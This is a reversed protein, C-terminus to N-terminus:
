GAMKGWAMRRIAEACEEPLSTFQLRACNESCSIVQAELANALPISLMIQLGVPLDQDVLIMAGGASLDVIECDTIDDNFVFYSAVSHSLRMESRREAGAPVLLSLRATKLADLAEALDGVLAEAPNARLVSVIRAEATEIYRVPTHFSRAPPGENQAHTMM